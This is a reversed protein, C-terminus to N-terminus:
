RFYWTGLLGFYNGDVSGGDYKFKHSAYRAKLGV